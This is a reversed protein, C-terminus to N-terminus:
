TPRPETQFLKALVGMHWPLRTKGHQPSERRPLCPYEGTSISLL